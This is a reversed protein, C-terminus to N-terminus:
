RQEEISIAMKPCAQAADEALDWLAAGPREDLVHLQDDEDVEFLDPAVAACLGNGDCLNYDVVVRM